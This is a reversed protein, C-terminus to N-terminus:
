GTGKAHLALASDAEARTAYIRDRVEFAKGSSDRMIRGGMVASVSPPHVLDFADAPLTGVLKYVGSPGLPGIVTPALRM